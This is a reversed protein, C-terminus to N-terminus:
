KLDTIEPSSDAASIAASVAAPERSSFSLAAVFCTLKMRFHKVFDTIGILVFKM